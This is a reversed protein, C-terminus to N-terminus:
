SCPRGPGAAKCQTGMRGLECKDYVKIWGDYRIKYWQGCVRVHDVDVDGTTTHPPVKFHGVGSAWADLTDSSHNYVRGRLVRAYADWSPTGAMLYCSILSVLVIASLTLKRM